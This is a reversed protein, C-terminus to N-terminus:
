LRLLLRRGRDLLLPHLRDGVDRGPLEDDRGGVALVEVAHDDRRDDEEPVDVLLSPSARGRTMGGGSAPSPLSPYSEAPCCRQPGHCVAGRRGGGAPPPLIM